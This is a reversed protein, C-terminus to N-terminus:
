SCRGCPPRRATADARAAPIKALLAVYIQETCALGAVMHGHGYVLYEALVKGAANGYDLYFFVGIHEAAGVHIDATVGQRVLLTQAGALLDYLENVACILIIKKYYNYAAAGRRKHAAGDLTDGKLVLDVGGVDHELGSRAYVFYVGYATM